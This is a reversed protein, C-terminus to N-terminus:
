LLYISLQLFTRLSLENFFLFSFASFYITVTIASTKIYYAFNLKARNHKLCVRVCEGVCM